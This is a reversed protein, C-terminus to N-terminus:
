KKAASKFIRLACLWGLQFRSSADLSSMLESIRRTVTSVSINLQRAILKDPLGAALLSVTDTIEESIPAKSAGLELSEGKFSIPTSREWFIEFLTYLADLLASNRVVLTLSDARDPHLPILAIRHDALVMKFPLSPFVRADEGSGINSKIRESAGPASVFETDSITRRLVGNAEM